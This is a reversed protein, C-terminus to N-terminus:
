SQFSLRASSRSEIIKLKVVDWHSVADPASPREFSSADDGSKSTDMVLACDADILLLM